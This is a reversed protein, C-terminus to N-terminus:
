SFVRLVEYEDKYRGPAFVAALFTQEEEADAAFEKATFTMLFVRNTSDVFKLTDVYKYVKGTRTYRVQQLFKKMSSRTYVYKRRNGDEDEDSSYEIITEDDPDDEWKFKRMYRNIMGYKMQPCDKLPPWDKEMVSLFRLRSELGTEQFGILCEPKIHTRRQPQLPGTRYLPRPCQFSYFTQFKLIQSRLVTTTTCRRPSPAPSNKREKKM